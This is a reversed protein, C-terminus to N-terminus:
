VAKLILASEVRKEDWGAFWGGTVDLQMVTDLYAATSMAALAKAANVAQEIGLIGETGLDGPSRRQAVGWVLLVIIGDTLRATHKKSKKQLATLEKLAEQARAANPSAAVQKDLAESSPNPKQAVLTNFLGLKAAPVKALFKEKEKPDGKWANFA